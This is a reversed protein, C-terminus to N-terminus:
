SEFLIGSCNYKAGIKKWALNRRSLCDPRSYKLIYLEPRRKVEEILKGCDIKGSQYNNKTRKRKKCEQGDNEV